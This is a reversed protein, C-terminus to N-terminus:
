HGWPKLSPHYVSPMVDKANFFFLIKKGQELLLVNKHKVSSLQCKKRTQQREQRGFIGKQNNYTCHACGISYM